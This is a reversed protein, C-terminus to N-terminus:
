LAFCKGYYNEFYWKKYFYPMDIKYQLMYSIVYIKTMIQKESYVFIVFIRVAFLITKNYVVLKEKFFRLRRASKIYIWKLTNM